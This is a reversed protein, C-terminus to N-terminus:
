SSFQENKEGEVQYESVVLQCQLIGKYYSIDAKGIVTMVASNHEDFYKGLYTDFFMVLDVGNEQKVKWHKGESMSIFQSKAIKINEVAILPEPFSSGYYNRIKDLKRIFPITLQDSELIFDVYTCKAFDVDSLLKNSKEIAKQINEKHIEVGFANPHGQVINFLKLDSLFAKLDRIPSFEPNRGSGGYVDNDIKRMLVCPRGYYEAVKIATVGMMKPDLIDTVNAFIIKNDDFHFKKIANIVDKMHKSQYSKQRNKANLCLRACKQCLTEMTDTGDRKHYPFLENGGVFARFMLEKEDSDGSRIMGNVLPVIYFQIDRGSFDQRMSFKQKELLEIFFQNKIKGLGKDILRRTEHSRVDMNDGILGLAVLDLYQDAFNSWTEDDVAQLFKYVVGVGSLYKNPYECMQNNVIIAHPNEAEKDHHDLIIIDIGHQHLHECQENDNTGADPVILLQTDNPIEIDKSIGHQKGSHLSYTLNSKPYLAKTYQHLIASSTYGDTDCDVILHIHNGESLHKLYTNVAEHINSLLEYSYLCQDDLNMLSKHNMIGRNQFVTKEVHELDNMSNAVLKYKLVVM